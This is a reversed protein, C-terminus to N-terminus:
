KGRITFVEEGEGWFVPKGQKIRKKAHDAAKQVIAENVGKGSLIRNLEAETLTPVMSPVDMEQGGISIGVSYETMDKGDAGKKVGLFGTSKTSGDPRIMDDPLSERSPAESVKVAESTM